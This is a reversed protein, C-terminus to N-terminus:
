NATRRYQAMKLRDITFTSVMAALISISGFLAANMVLSEEAQNFYIALIGWLITAAYIFDRQSILFVLALAAGIAILSFGFVSEQNELFPIHFSKLVVAANLVVALSIWGFYVGFPVHFFYRVTTGLSDKLKYFLRFMSILSFLLILMIFLSLILWENQFAVLWLCNAAVSLLFFPWILKYFRVDKGKILQFGAFVSLSLYIFAWIIFAYGDPMIVIPYKASLAAHTNGGFPIYNSLFNVIMMIVLAIIFTVRKLINYTYATKM